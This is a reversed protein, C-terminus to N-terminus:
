SYRQWFRPFHLISSFVQELVLVVKPFHLILSFVQELVLVVKIGLWMALLANEIYFQGEFFFM